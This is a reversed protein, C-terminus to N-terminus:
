RSKVWPGSLSSLYKKLNYHPLFSAPLYVYTRIYILLQTSYPQSQCQKNVFLELPWFPIAITSDLREVSRAPGSSEKAEFQEGMAVRENAFTSTCSLWQDRGEM